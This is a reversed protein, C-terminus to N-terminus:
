AANARLLDTLQEALDSIGTASTQTLAANQEASKAAQAVGDINEVVESVGQSVDNANRAIDRVTAAQQEVSAAISTAFGDIQEIVNSVTGIAVVSRNTADQIADIQQAIEETARATEKALEKVENAVVAFGKGAEGARAAEITANLALLNTQQAITSIVKTVKGIAASSNSLEQVTTNASAALERAERATKASQAANSAIERVTASMQESASAVSTVNSKIQMAASAVRTAQASTETAGSGMQAAVQTMEASSNGLKDTAAKLQLMINKEREEMAVRATIIEWSLAPGIYKGTDDNIAFVNLELHDDGVRIRAKHPLNRPDSLMRRQHGPNKHFIDFNSGVLQSVKIPLFRELKQLAQLTAPNVYTINFDMDCLMTPNPSNDVLSKIKATETRANDEREQMAVRASINEWAVAPGAFEGTEDYLAYATLSLTETGHKVECRYPLRSPDLLTGRNFASDYLASINTGVLEGNRLAIHREVSKLADKSADNVYRVILQPDCMVMPTPSSDVMGKIVAIERAKNERAEREAMSMQMAQLGDFLSEIEPGANREVEFSSLDGRGIRECTQIARAIPQSIQRSILITLGSALAIFIAFMSSSQLRAKNANAIRTHLGNELAPIVVDHLDTVASFSQESVEIISQPNLDAHEVSLVKQNVINLLQQIAATTKNFSPEITKALGADNENIHQHAAQLHALEDGTSQASASLANRASFTPHQQKMLLMVDNRFQGLNIELQPISVTAYDMLFYTTAEPDLVLGSRNIVGSNFQKLKALVEDYTALMETNVAHDAKRLEALQKKIGNWDDRTKLASGHEIDIKDLESVATDLQSLAKTLVDNGQLNGGAIMNAAFNANSLPEIIEEIGQSYASGKLELEAVDITENQLKILRYEAIIGPVLVAIAIILSKQWLRTRSLLNM